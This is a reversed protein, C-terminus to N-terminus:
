DGAPAHPPVIVSVHVALSAQLLFRTETERFIVTLGAVAGVIVASAFVVTAHPAIGAGLM